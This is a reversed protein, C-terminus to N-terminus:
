STAAKALQFFIGGLTRQRSGNRVLMGAGAFIVKAEEVLEDTRAFGVRRAVEAVARHIRPTDLEHLARCVRQIRARARRRSNERMTETVVVRAERPGPAVAWNTIHYALM